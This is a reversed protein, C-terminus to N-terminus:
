VLDLGLPALSLLSSRTVESSWLSTWYTGDEIHGVQPMIPFAHLAIFSMSDQLSIQLSHLKESQDSFSQVPLRM